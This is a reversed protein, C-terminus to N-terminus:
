FYFLFIIGNAPYIDFKGVSPFYFFYEFHKTTYSPITMNISKTYYLTNLPLSGDPIECLIEFNLTAVSCNTIIM